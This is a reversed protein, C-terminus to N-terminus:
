LLVYLELTFALAWPFDGYKQPYIGFGGCEGSCQVIVGNENYKELARLGKILFQSCSQPLVRKVMGKQLAYLIMASASSDEEGEGATLQWTFSGNECQYKLVTFMTERFRESLYIYEESNELIFDLSKIIGYLLWGVARGWGIIGLKKKIKFNYGHYPLKTKEDFGYQYFNKIQEYGLRSAEIVNFTTGYRFLFPCVFGIMDVYINNTHNIRYVFSGKEDRDHNKLFNYMKDLTFKYKEKKETEYLFFVVSSNMINDLYYIKSGQKIWDNCYNYLARKIQEDDTLELIYVLAEALVGNPWSYKDVRIKKQGTFSKYVNLLNKKCKFKFNIEPYDKLQQVATEILKRDILKM